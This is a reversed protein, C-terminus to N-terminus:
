KGADGAYSEIFRDCDSGPNTHGGAGEGNDEDASAGRPPSPMAFDDGNGMDDEFCNLYEDLDGKLETSSARKLKKPSLSASHDDKRFIDNRWEISCSKSLSIHHSVARLTQFVKGCYQCRLPAMFSNSSVYAVRSAVSDM